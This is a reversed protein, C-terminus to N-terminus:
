AEKESEPSPRHVWRFIAYCLVAAAIVVLMLGLPQVEWGVKKM